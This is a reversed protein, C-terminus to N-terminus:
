RVCVYAFYGCSKGVTQELGYPKSGSASAAAARGGYPKSINRPGHLMVNSSATLQHAVADLPQM